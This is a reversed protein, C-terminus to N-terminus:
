NDVRLREPHAYHPFGSKVKNSGGELRGWSVIASIASSSGLQNRQSPGRGSKALKVGLAGLERTRRLHYLTGSTSAYSHLNAVSNTMIPATNLRYCDTDYHCHGTKQSESAKAYQQQLTEM